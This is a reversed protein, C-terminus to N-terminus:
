RLDISVVQRPLQALRSIGRVDNEHGEGAVALVVIPPPNPFGAEIMMQQLRELRLRKCLDDIGNGRV